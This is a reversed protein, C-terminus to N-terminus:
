NWITNDPGKPLIRVKPNEKLKWYWQWHASQYYHQKIEDFKTNNKFAPISYLDKSYRWLNTYDRIMQKNCRFLEYYVSDFRALTTFLRVDSDTLQDGFLYKKDELRSDLWDLRTFLHDYAFEYARQNRALGASYVGKNVDQYIIENLNDIDERLNQPYLNPADHKHYKLWEVELYNTLHNYDNNVVQGNYEDILAPVTPRGSYVPDAKHYSESLFHIKLIPDIKQPYHTFSWDIKGNDPRLVDVEGISIVSELGLLERVIAVRTSWPCATAWILRYRNPIVKLDNKDAGFPQDFQVSGIKLKGESDFESSKGAM